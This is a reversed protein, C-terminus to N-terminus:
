RTASLPARVVPCAATHGPAVEVLEPVRRACEPEALPCRLRFRCGSPPSSPDPVDGPLTAPLRGAGDPRPVADILARTYPHRPRAWVEATPGSEVVTGLYMVTVTDAIQRVIALDHSVFLLGMDLERALEVLLLAVSAQASADLASIPEDAVVCRPEAALARAIAVRQRQGGSFEHPYRGAADAPLSVRGLLETVRNRDGGLGALRLGDDIQDGVTRRPNLSSFPDQFIMQLRRQAAPRARRTLPVVPEGDFTVTGASPALLGVVAKGLTSKGCGSEGVLGAIRGREVTLGAGAVATVPPRGPSRYTVVLDRVELLSM